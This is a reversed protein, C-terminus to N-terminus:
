SDLHHLDMEYQQALHVRLRPEDLSKFNEAATAVWFSIKAQSRYALGLWLDHDRHFSRSVFEKGLFTLKLQM